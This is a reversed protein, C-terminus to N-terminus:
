QRLAGVFNIADIGVITFLISTGLVCENMGTCLVINTLAKSPSGSRLGCAFCFSNNVDNHLHPMLFNLKFIWQVSM